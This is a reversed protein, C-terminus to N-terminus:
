RHGSTFLLFSQGFHGLPMQFPLGLLIPLYGIQLLFHSLPSTLQHFGIRSGTFFHDSQLTIELRILGRNSLLTVLEFAFALFKSGLSTQIRKNCGRDCINPQQRDACERQNEAPVQQIRSNLGGIVL